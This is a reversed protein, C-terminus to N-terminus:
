IGMGALSFFYATPYNDARSFLQKLYDLDYGGLLLGMRNWGKGWEGWMLSAVWWPFICLIEANRRGVTLWRRGCM